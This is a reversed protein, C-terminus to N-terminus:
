YLVQNLLLHYDYLLFGFLEFASYSHAVRLIMNSDLRLRSMRMLFADKQLIICSISFACHYITLVFVTVRPPDTIIIFIIM